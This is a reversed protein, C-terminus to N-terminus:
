KFVGETGFNDSGLTNKKERLVGKEKEIYVEKNRKIERERKKAYEIEGGRTKQESCKKM